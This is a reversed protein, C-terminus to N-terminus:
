KVRVKHWKPEPIEEGDLSLSAEKVPVISRGIYDDTSLDDKDYLDLVFPPMDRVSEAEIM